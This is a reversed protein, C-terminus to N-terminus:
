GSLNRRNTLFVAGYAFLLFSGLSVALSQLPMPWWAGHGGEIQDRYPQLALELYSTFVYADVGLPYKIADILLWGGVAIGIAGAPNRTASSVFLGWACLAALPALGAAMGLMYSQLLDEHSYLTVGGFSVGTRDGLAYLLGWSLVVTIVVLFLMYSMGLLLKAVVYEARRIPRVLVARIAGSALESSLLNANFLLIAFLGLTHLALATAQAPYAYDGHNDRQLPALWLAGLVGALVLAVGAWTSWQRITKEMEVGYAAVIRRMM